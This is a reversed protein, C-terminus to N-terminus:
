ARALLPDDSEDGDDPRLHDSQFGIVPGLVAGSITGHLTSISGGNQSPFLSMETADEGAAYKRSSSAAAKTFAVGGRVKGPLDKRSSADLRNRDFRDVKLRLDRDRSSILAQLETRRRELAAKFERTSRIESEINEISLQLSDGGNQFDKMKAAQEGIKSKLGVIVDSLHRSLSDKEQVLSVMRLQHEQLVRETKKLDQAQQKAEIWVRSLNENLEQKEKAVVDLEAKTKLYDAQLRDALETKERLKENYSALEKFVSALQAKCADM